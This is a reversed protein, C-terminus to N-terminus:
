KTVWVSVDGYKVTYYLIIYFSGLTKIQKIKIHENKFISRMLLLWLSLLFCLQFSSKMKLFYYIFIVNISQKIHLIHLFWRMLSNSHASNSNASMKLLKRFFMDLIFGFSGFTFFCCLKLLFSCSTRSM